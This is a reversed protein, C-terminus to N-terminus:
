VSSNDQVKFFVAAVKRRNKNSGHMPSIPTVAHGAGTQRQMIAYDPHAM